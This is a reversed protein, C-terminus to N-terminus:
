DDTNEVEEHDEPITILMPVFRRMKIRERAVEIVRRLDALFQEAVPPPNAM